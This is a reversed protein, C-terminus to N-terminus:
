TQAWGHILTSGVNDSFPQFFTSLLNLIFTSKVSKRLTLDVDFRRQCRFTSFFTSSLNLIFTSEVSKRLTSDVNFRRWLQLTSRGNVGDVKFCRQWEVDFCHQQSLTSVVTFFNTSDVKMRVWIDVLIEVKTTLTSEFQWDVYSQESPQSPKIFSTRMFIATKVRQELRNAHVSGGGQPCESSLTSPIKRQEVESIDIPSIKRM